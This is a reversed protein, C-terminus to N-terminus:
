VGLTKSFLFHLFFIFSFLFHLNCIIEPKGCSNFSSSNKAKLYNAYHKQHGVENTCDIKSNINCRIASFCWHYLSCIFYFLCSTPSLNLMQTNFGCSIHLEYLSIYFVQLLLMLCFWILLELALHAPRSIADVGSMYPWPLFKM